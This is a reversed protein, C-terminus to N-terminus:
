CGVWTAGEMYHAVPQGASLASWKQHIEYWGEPLLQLILYNVLDPLGRPNLLFVAGAVAHPVLLLTGPETAVWLHIPIQAALLLEAGVQRALSPQQTNAPAVALDAGSFSGGARGREPATLLASLM